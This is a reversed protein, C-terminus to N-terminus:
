CNIPASAFYWLWVNSILKQYNLFQLRPPAIILGDRHDELPGSNLEWCGCQPEGGDITISDSARKQHASLYTSLASM